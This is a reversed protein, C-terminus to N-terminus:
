SLIPIGTYGQFIKVAPFRLVISTQILIHEKAFPHNQPEGDIKLMYIPYNIKRIDQATLTM